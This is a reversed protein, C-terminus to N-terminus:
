KANQKKTSNKIISKNLHITKNRKLLTKNNKIKQKNKKTKIGGGSIPKKLGMEAIALQKGIHDYEYDQATIGNMEDSDMALRICKLYFMEVFNSSKNCKLLESFDVNGFHFFSLTEVFLKINTKIFPKLANIDNLNEVNLNGKIKQKLNTLNQSAEDNNNLLVLLEIHDKIKVLLSFNSLVFENINKTNLSDTITKISNSSAKLNQVIDAVRDNIDTEKLGLENIKFKLVPDCTPNTLLKV